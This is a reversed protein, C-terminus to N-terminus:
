RPANADIWEAIKELVGEINEKVEHDYFRLFRVGLGELREQRKEDYKEKDAHTSGDIEIALLLESCFFDVIYNDIPKQRHFDCGRM